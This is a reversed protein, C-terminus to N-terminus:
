RRMFGGLLKMGIGAVDDILKGDNDKDLLQGIIGMEKNSRKNIVQDTNQLISSLDTPKQIKKKMMQQGIVGLVVPALIQMIKSVQVPSAGTAQGINREAMGRQGGLIHRLIGNGEGQEPKQILHDLQNFIGGDHKQQVANFLNDTGKKSNSNKILGGIVLPLASSIVNRALGSEIGLQQSIQNVIQPALAQTAMDLLNM